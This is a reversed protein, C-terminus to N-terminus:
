IQLLNSEMEESVNFDKAKMSQLGMKLKICKVMTGKRLWLFSDMM